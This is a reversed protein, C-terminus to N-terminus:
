NEPYRCNTLRGMVKFETILGAYFYAPKKKEYWTFPVIIIKSM